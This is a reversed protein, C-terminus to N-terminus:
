PNLIWDGVHIYCQLDWFKCNALVNWFDNILKAKLRIMYMLLVCCIWLCYWQIRNSKGCIISGVVVNEKKKEEKTGTLKQKHTHM